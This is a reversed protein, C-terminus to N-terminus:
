LKTPKGTKEWLITAKSNRWSDKRMRREVEENMGFGNSILAMPEVELVLFSVPMM